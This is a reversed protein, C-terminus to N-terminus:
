PREFVAQVRTIRGEAHNRTAAAQIADLRDGMVLRQVTAGAHGAAAGQLAAPAAPAAPAPDADWRVERFGAALIRARLEAPALLFSAEPAAAWMLPFHPPQVRGAAPEQIALRGGPRLARFFGAYLAAKDAINMGSNQTLVADFRGAAFPLSLADACVHRVRGALGARATLYAGARVYDETIDAVTVLCGHEAALVRAPGGLGGGADLVRSGPAPALARALARSAGIGGGHFHDLPALEDVSLVRGGSAGPAPLVAALAATLGPRLWNERGTRAGDASPGSGGDM